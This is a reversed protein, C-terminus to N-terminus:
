TQSNRSTQDRFETHKTRKLLSSSRILDHFLFQYQWSFWLQLLFSVVVGGALTVSFFPAFIRVFNTLMFGRSNALYEQLYWCFHTMAFLMYMLCQTLGDTGVEEFLLACFVVHYYYHRAFHKCITRNNIGAFHM